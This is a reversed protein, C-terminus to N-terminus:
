QMEAVMREKSEFAEGISEKYRFYVEEFDDHEEVSGERLLLFRHCNGKLYRHSHSVILM